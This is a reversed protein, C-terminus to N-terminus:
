LSRWLFHIPPCPRAWAAFRRGGCSLLPCAATGTTGRGEPGVVARRRASPESGKECPGRPWWEYTVLVTLKGREENCIFCAQPPAPVPWARPASCVCFALFCLLRFDPNRRPPPSCGTPLILSAPGSQALTATVPASSCAGPQAM